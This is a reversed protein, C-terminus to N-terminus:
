RRALRALPLWLALLCYAVFLTLDVLAFFLAQRLWPANM